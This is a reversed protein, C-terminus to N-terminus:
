GGTARFLAAVLDDENRHFRGAPAMVSLAVTPPGEGDRLPVAAGCIGETYEEADVAYGRRQAEALETRLRDEDTITNDTRARLRGMTLYRDLRAPPGFALLCKGSARAHIDGRTGVQLAAVRVAQRGEVNAALIVDDGIWSSINATEGTEDSVQHLAAVARPSPRVGASIRDHLSLIKSTSLAYTRGHKELYGGDVLTNLLHVTTTLHLGLETAIEQARPSARREAVVDLIALARAVSQVRGNRGGVEVM